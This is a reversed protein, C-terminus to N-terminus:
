PRLHQCGTRESCRETRGTETEIGRRTGELGRPAGPEGELESQELFSDNSEIWTKHGDMLWNSHGPRPKGSQDPRPWTAVGPALLLSHSSWTSWSWSFPIPAPCTPHLVTRSQDSYRKRGGHYAERGNVQGAGM